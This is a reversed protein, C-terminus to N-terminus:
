AMGLRKLLDIWAEARLLILLADYRGRERAITVLGQRAAEAHGGFRAILDIAVERESPDKTAGTM